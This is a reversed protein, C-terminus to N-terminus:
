VNEGPADATTSPARAGDTTTILSQLKRAGDTTTILSQLKRALICDKLNDQPRLRHGELVFAIREMEERSLVPQYTDARDLDLQKARALVTNIMEYLGKSPMFQRAKELAKVLDTVINSM